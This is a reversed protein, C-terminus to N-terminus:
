EYVKTKIVKPGNTIKINELWIYYQIKNPKGYKIKFYVFLYIFTCAYQLVMSSCTCIIIIQLLTSM